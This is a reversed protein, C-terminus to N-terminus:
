PGHGAPPLQLVRCSSTPGVHLSEQGPYGHEPSPKNGKQSCREDYEIYQLRKDFADAIRILGEEKPVQGDKNEAEQAQHRPGKEACPSDLPQTIFGGAVSRSTATGM